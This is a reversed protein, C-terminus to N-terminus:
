NNSLIYVFSINKVWEWEPELERGDYDFLIQFEDKEMLSINQSNSLKNKEELYEQIYKM